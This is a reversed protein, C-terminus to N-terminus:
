IVLLEIRVVEVPIKGFVLLMKLRAYNKDPDRKVKFTYDLKSYM